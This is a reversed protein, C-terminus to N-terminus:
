LSHRHIFALGFWHQLLRLIGPVERSRLDAKVTQGFFSARVSYFM